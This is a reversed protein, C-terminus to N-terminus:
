PGPAAGHLVAANDADTGTYRGAIQGMEQSVALLRRSLSDRYGDLARYLGAAAAGSREAPNGPDGCSVGLRAAQEGILRAAERLGAPVVVLTADAVVRLM